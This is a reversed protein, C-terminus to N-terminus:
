KSSSKIRIEVPVDTQECLPNACQYERENQVFIMKKNCQKCAFFFMDKKNIASIQAVIM